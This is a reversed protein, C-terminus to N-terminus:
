TKLILELLEATNRQLTTSVASYGGLELKEKAQAIAEPTKAQAYAVLLGKPVRTNKKARYQEVCCECFKGEYFSMTLYLFNKQYYLIYPIVYGFDAVQDAPTFGREVLTKEFLAMDTTM